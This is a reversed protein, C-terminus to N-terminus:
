QAGGAKRHLYQNPSTQQMKSMGPKDIGGPLEQKGAGIVGKAQMARVFGKVMVDVRERASQDPELAKINDRVPKNPRLRISARDIADRVKAPTPWYRGEHEELLIDGALHQVEGATRGIVREYEAIFAEVDPTDPAGFVIAFRQLLHSAM